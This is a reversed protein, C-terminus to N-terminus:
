YMGLSPPLYSKLKLMITLIKPIFQKLDKCMLKEQKLKKFKQKQKSYNPLHHKNAFM